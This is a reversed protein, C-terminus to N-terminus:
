AAAARPVLIRVRSPLPGLAARLARGHALDEAALRCDDLELPLFNLRDRIAACDLPVIGNCGAALWALASRHIRLPRGAFYSAPNFLQNIGIAQAVGLCRLIRDPRERTWAVLDIPTEADDGVAVHVVARVSDESGPAAFDFTARPFVVIDHEVIPGAVNLAHSLDVGNSALWRAFEPQPESLLNFEMAAKQGVTM